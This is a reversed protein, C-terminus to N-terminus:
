KVKYKESYHITSQDCDEDDDLKMEGRNCIMDKMVNGRNDTLVVDMYTTKEVHFTVTKKTKLSKCTGTSIKLIVEKFTQTVTFEEEPIREPAVVVGNNIKYVGDASSCNDWSYGAFATSSLCFLISTFFFKKM